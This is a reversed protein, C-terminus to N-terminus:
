LFDLNRYFITLLYYINPKVSSPLLMLLLCSQHFTVDFDISGLFTLIIRGQYYLYFLQYNKVTMWALQDIKLTLNEMKQLKDCRQCHQECESHMSQRHSDQTSYFRHTVLIFIIPLTKRLHWIVPKEGIEMDIWVIRIDSLTRYDQIYYIWGKWNM